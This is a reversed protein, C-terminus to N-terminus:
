QLIWGDKTPYVTGYGNEDDDRLTDNDWVANRDTRYNFHLTPHEQSTIIRAVTGLGPHSKFRKSNTSFLFNSCNVLQLLEDNTNHDSGHHSVKMASLPLAALGRQQLVRRIALVLTSPWADGALLISHQEYELLMAISSGNPIKTDEDVFGDSLAVVDIDEDGLADPPLPQLAPRDEILALGTEDVGPTLSENKVEEDWVDLLAQLAANTPSLLTIKLGHWDDPEYEWLADDSALGIPGGDFPTNHSYNKEPKALVASLAEAELAGLADPSTLQSYGNFWVQKIENGSFEGLLPVAGSIHDSDIHTVVFLDVPTQRVRERVVTYTSRTGCDVLM